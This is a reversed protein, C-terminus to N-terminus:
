LKLIQITIAMPIQDSSLSVLMQNLLVSGRSERFLCVQQITRCLRNTVCSPEAETCCFKICVASHYCIRPMLVIYYNPHTNAHVGHRKFPRKLTLKLRECHWVLIKQWLDCSLSKSADILLSKQGKMDYRPHQLYCKGTFPINRIKTKRTKLIQSWFKKAHNM